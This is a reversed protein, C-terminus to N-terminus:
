RYLSAVFGSDNIRRVPELAVFAEPDATAAKPNNRAVEDLATRLGVPTPLLDRTTRSHEFALSEELLDREDTQTYRGLSALAAEPQQYM